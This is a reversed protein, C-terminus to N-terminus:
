LILDDATLLPAGNIDISFDSSGNGDMDIYLRGISGNYRVEGPTGTGTYSAGVFTLTLGGTALASLDIQDVGHQFDTIQDRGAGASHLSEAVSTWVFVDAGTGGSLIDSGLGAELTDDGSGGFFRDNGDGGILRDNGANGALTDNGVSGSLTDNGDGGRIIDNGLGGNLSDNGADGNLDDNDGGGLITDNDDGGFITDNGDNGAILDAGADGFMSDAGDGGRMTDNGVGGLLNDNGADGYIDDDGSGGFITDAGDGGRLTDNGNNGAIVDNGDEGLISDAGEGGRLVDNGTGGFIFDDGGDGFLFDVGSGGYITDAGDLGEIRDSGAAGDMVEPNATGIITEDIGASVTLAVTLPTDNVGDSIVVEATYAGATEPAEFVLAQFEAETLIQGVTVASTGLYLMGALPLVALRYTLEEGEPDTVVVDPALLGRRTGAQIANPSWVSSTGDGIVAADNAGEITVTVTETTGDETTITFSDTLTEGLNLGNV